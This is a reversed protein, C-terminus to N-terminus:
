VPARASTPAADLSKEVGIKKQSIRGARGPWAIELGQPCAGPRRRGRLGGDSEVRDVPTRKEFASSVEQRFIYISIRGREHRYAPLEKDSLPCRNLLFVHLLNPGHYQEIEVRM